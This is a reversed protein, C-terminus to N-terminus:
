HKGQHKAMVDHSKKNFEEYKYLSGLKMLYESCFRKEVDKILKTIKNTYDYYGLYEAISKSSVEFGFYESLLLIDLLFIFNGELFGGGQYLISPKYGDTEYLEPYKNKKAESSKVKNVFFSNMFDTAFKYCFAQPQEDLREINKSKDLGIPNQYWYPIEHLRLYRASIPDNLMDYFFAGIDAYKNLLLVDKSKFAEKNSQIERMWCIVSLRHFLIEFFDDCNLRSVDKYKSPDFSLTQGIKTGINEIHRMFSKFSAKKYQKNLKKDEFKQIVYTHGYSIHLHDIKYNTFRDAYKVYSDLFVDLLRDKYIERSLKEIRKHLSSKTSIKVWKPLEEYLDDITKSVQLADPIDYADLSINKTLLRRIYKAKEYPNIVYNSEKLKIYIENFLSDKFFSFDDIEEKTYM